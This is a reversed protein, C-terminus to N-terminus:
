RRESTWYKMREVMSKEEIVPSIGRVVSWKVNKNQEDALNTQM